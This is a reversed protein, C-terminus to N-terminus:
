MNARCRGLPGLHWGRPCAHMAPHAFNRLCGGHPGRHWGLGCGGAVLTINSDATRSLPAVPAAQVSTLGALVLSAAFTLSLLRKM